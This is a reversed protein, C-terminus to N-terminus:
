RPARTALRLNSAARTNVLRDRPPPQPTTLAMTCEAEASACHVCGDKNCIDIEGKDNVSWACRAGSATSDICMGVAQRGNIAYAPTSFLVPAAITAIALAAAQTFSLFKRRNTTM